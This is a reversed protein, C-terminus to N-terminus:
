NAMLVRIKTFSNQVQPIHTSTVLGADAGHYSATSVNGIISKIYKINDIQKQQAINLPLNDVDVAGLLHVGLRVNTVKRLAKIMELQEPSFTSIPKRNKPTVGKIEIKAIKTSLIKQTHTPQVFVTVPIGKDAFTKAFQLTNKPKTHTNLHDITICIDGIFKVKNKPKLPKPKPPCKTIIGSTDWRQSAFSRYSVTNEVLLIM